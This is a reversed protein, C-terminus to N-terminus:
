SAWERDYWQNRIQLTKIPEFIATTVQLQLLKKTDQVIVRIKILYHHWKAIIAKEIEESRSFLKKTRSKAVSVSMKFDSVGRSPDKPGALIRKQEEEISVLITSSRVKNTGTSLRNAVRRVTKKNEEEAPFV